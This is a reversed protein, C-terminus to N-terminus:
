HSQKQHKKVKTHTLEKTDGDLYNVRYFCAKNDYATIEGKCWGQNFHKKIITGIPFVNQSQAQQLPNVDGKTTQTPVEKIDDKSTPTGSKTSKIPAINLGLIDGLATLTKRLGQANDVLLGNCHPDTLVDKVEALILAIVKSPNIIPWNCCSSFFEVTNSVHLSKTSPIYCIFNWYHHQMQQVFFRSTGRNDWNGTEKPHEHLNVKCSAPGIPTADYNFHGHVVHHQSIHKSRQCDYYISPTNQM